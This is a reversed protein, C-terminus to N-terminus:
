DITETIGAVSACASAPQGDTLKCLLATLNQAEVEAGDREGSGVRAYRCGFVLFPISGNNLSSYESFVDMDAQSDMRVRFDVVGDFAAAVEEVIPHEWTCHPCGSSGFFYSIPLGDENECVENDLISFQGATVGLVKQGVSGTTPVQNNPQNQAEPQPQATKNKNLNSFLSGALFSMGVLVITLFIMSFSNSTRENEAM